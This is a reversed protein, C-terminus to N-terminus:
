FLTPGLETPASRRVKWQAEEKTRRAHCNACRVVCHANVHAIFKRLRSKTSLKSRDKVWGLSERKSQPDVHDFHLAEPWANFGCDVCGAALKLEDLVAAAERINKVHQEYTSVM